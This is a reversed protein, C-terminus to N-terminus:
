SPLDPTCNGTLYCIVEAWHGTPDTNDLPSANGYSYPNAALPNPLASNQQTDASDFQGSSPSYWRSDMNVKGNSTYGSQYGLAASWSSNGTINGLPDYTQWAALDTATSGFQAVMNDHTDTMTETVAGGGAGCGPFCM